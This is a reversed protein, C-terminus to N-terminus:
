TYITAFATTCALEIESFEYAGGRWFYDIVMWTYTVNM